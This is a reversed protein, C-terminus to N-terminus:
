MTRVKFGRIKGEVQDIITGVPSNMATEDVSVVMETNQIFGLLRMYTPNTFVPRELDYFAMSVQEPMYVGLEMGQKIKKCVEYILKPIHEIAKFNNGHMLIAQNSYYEVLSLMEEPFLQRIRSLYAYFEHVFAQQKSTQICKPRKSRVLDIVQTANLETSYLLFCAIALGTRGYGAHCHVAIKEGRDIPLSMLQVLDAMKNIGPTHMDPWGMNYFYINAEYLEEPTYTFAFNQQLGDGCYPHEGPIQLNFVSTINYSKFQSIINHEKIIRSSLRQTALVNETIWDSNLGHIAPNEHNLYNEHKCSAGGCFLCRFKNRTEWNRQRVQKSRSRVLKLGNTTDNDSKVRRFCDCM